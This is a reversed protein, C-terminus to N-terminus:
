LSGHPKSRRNQISRWSIIEVIWQQGHRSTRFDFFEVPAESLPGKLNSLRTLSRMFAAVKIGSLSEIESKRVLISDKGPAAGGCREWLYALSPYVALDLHEIPEVAQELTAVLVAWTHRNIAACRVRNALPSTPIM